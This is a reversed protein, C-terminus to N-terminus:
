SRTTNRRQAAIHLPLAAHVLVRTAEPEAASAAARPAASPASGGTRLRGALFAPTLRALGDAASGSVGAEALAIGAAASACLIGGLRRSVDTRTAILARAQFAAHVAAIDQAEGPDLGCPLVLALTARSAELLAQLDAAQQPDGPDLGPADILVPQGPDRRELARELIKPTGAAVLTLGLLRTFAALQEVAGARQGDATIVLPRQGALVLRTALRAATLTKGGGAPGALLLPADHGGLPLQTFRFVRACQVELQGECLSAALSSSLGHWGLAAALGPAPTGARRAAPGPPQVAALTAPPPRVGLIGPSFPELDHLGSQPLSHVRLRPAEDTELAATVEVQGDRSRDSLILAEPGLEARIQAM